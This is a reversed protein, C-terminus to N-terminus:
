KVPSHADRHRIVPWVLSVEILVGVAAILARIAMAPIPGSIWLGSALLALITASGLLPVTQHAPWEEPVWLQLYIFSFYGAAAGILAAFNILSFYDVMRM